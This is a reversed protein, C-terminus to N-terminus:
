LTGSGRYSQIIYFDLTIALLVQSEVKNTSVKFNSYTSLSELSPMNFMSKKNRKYDYKTTFTLTDHNRYYMM